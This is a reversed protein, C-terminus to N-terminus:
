MTKVGVVDMKEIFISNRALNLIHIVEPLTRIRGDKLKLKVRGHGIINTPSDDGLYM